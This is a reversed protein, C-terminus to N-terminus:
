KYYSEKRYSKKQKRKVGGALSTIDSLQMKWTGHENLLKFERTVSQSQGPMGDLGIKVYVTASNKKENLLRFNEMKQWCCAPKISSDKMGRVFQERSTKGRKALRSYLEEHRGERWLDLTESMVNEIHDPLTNASAAVPSLFLLSLMLIVVGRVIDMM